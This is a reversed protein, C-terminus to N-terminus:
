ARAAARGATPRPRRGSSSTSAARCLSSARAPSARMTRSRARSGRAEDRIQRDLEAIQAKLEKIRPHNDLLTSSQECAACAVDRAAREPPPSRPNILRLVELRLRRAQARRPIIKAKSELDGEALAGGCSRPQIRRADPEVADHRQHGIMLNTKAASNRSGEGRGDAVRKRLVTSRAALWRARPARTQESAARDAAAALYNDASRKASSRAALEPDASQFEISIVRSKDVPFV